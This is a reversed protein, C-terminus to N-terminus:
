GMTSVWKGLAGCPQKWPLSNANTNSRTRAGPCAPTAGQWVKKAAEGIAWTTLRPLPASITSTGEGGGVCM